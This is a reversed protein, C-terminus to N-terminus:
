ALYMRNLLNIKNIIHKQTTMFIISLIVEGGYESTKNEGYGKFNILLPFMQCIKRIYFVSITIAIAQLIVESLIVQGEKSEDVPSFLRNLYFGWIITVIIYLISYQFIEFLENFRYKDVSILDKFKNM